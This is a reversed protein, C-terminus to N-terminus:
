NPSRSPRVSSIAPIPDGMLARLQNPHKANKLVAKKGHHNLLMYMLLLCARHCLGERTVARLFLEENVASLNVIIKEGKFYNLGWSELAKFDDEPFPKQKNRDVLKVMEPIAVLVV